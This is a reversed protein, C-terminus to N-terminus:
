PSVEEEPEPACEIVPPPEPCTINRSEEHCFQRIEKFLYAARDRSLGEPELVPPLDAITFSTGPVKLINITRDPFKDSCSMEVEGPKAASFCFRQYGTINKVPMFSEKLYSDWARWDWCFTQAENFAASSNVADALHAVTDIDGKRYKQKALGFGADVFCWMHGVRMFDLEIHENLGVMTRWSLFGLVSKNKNQSCCNDAHLGLTKAKKVTRELHFHLMSIVANPGHSKSGDKGITQHEDILYNTQKPIGESAIGFLQVRRPVRFYLPGVQRGHHLITAQQAFDFTMHSYTLTNDQRGQAEVEAVKARAICARYHDRADMATTVHTKLSETITLRDEETVARSIQSQFQACTGCVDERLKMIIIDACTTTWVRNFSIYSMSGGSKMFLGHVMKKTTHCPLYIPVPKNHGRPAAPQPLGHVDAYNPIFQTASQNEDDSHVNWPRAGSRGHPPTVICGAELHSQVKQLMHRTCCNAFLYVAQCVKEGNVAYGYTVRQRREPGAQTQGGHSVGSRRALVLLQGALFTERLESDVAESM